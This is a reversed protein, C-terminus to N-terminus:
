KITIYFIIIIEKMVRTLSMDTEGHMSNYILKFPNKHTCASFEPYTKTIKTKTRNKIACKCTILINRQSGFTIINIDTM